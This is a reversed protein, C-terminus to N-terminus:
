HHRIVVAVMRLLLLLLAPEIVAQLAVLVVATRQKLLNGRARSPPRAKQRGNHSGALRQVGDIMVVANSCCLPYKSHLRLLRRLLMVM